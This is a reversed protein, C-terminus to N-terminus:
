FVYKLGLMLSGQLRTYTNTEIYTSTSVLRLSKSTALNFVDQGFLIASWHSNCQYEFRYDFRHFHISTNDIQNQSWVYDAHATWKKDKYRLGIGSQWSQWSQNIAEQIQESWNYSSKLHANWKGDWVTALQTSLSIRREKITAEPFRKTTSFTPSFKTQWRYKKDWVPYSLSVTGVFHHAKQALFVESIIFDNEFRNFRSLVNDAEEYRFTTSISVKNEKQMDFYYMDLYRKRTSQGAELAHLGIQLNTELLYLFFSHNQEIFYQTQGVSLGIFKSIRWNYKFRILPNLWLPRFSTDNNRLYNYTAELELHAMWKNNKIGYQVTPKWAFWRYSHDPQNEYPLLIDRSINTSFHHWELRNWIKLLFIHNKNEVSSLLTVNKSDNDIKQEYLPRTTADETFGTKINQKKLSTGITHRSSWKPSHRINASIKPSYEWQYEKDSFLSQYPQTDYLGSWTQKSNQKHYSLPIDLELLVDESQERKININGSLLPFRNKQNTEGLFSTNADYFISQVSADKEVTKYLGLLSLKGRTKKDIDFDGSSSFFHQNEIAADLQPLLVEPVVSVEGSQKQDLSNLNTILGLYELPQIVPAGINNSKVFGAIGKNHSIRFTEADSSYKNRIGGLVEVEWNTRGQAMDKLEINMAVGEKHAKSFRQHFPKYEHIIQIKAIDNAKLGDLAMSHQNNLIDRGQVWIQQVRKGQYLIQNTASIEIGPVRKLIDGLNVDTQTKFGKVDFTLTDGREKIFSREGSVVVEELEQICNKLQIALFATNSSSLDIRQTYTDCGLKSVVLNVLNYTSDIQIEFTKKAELAVYAIPNFLTDYLEVSVFSQEVLSESTIFGRFIKDQSYVTCISCWCVYCLVIALRYMIRSDM